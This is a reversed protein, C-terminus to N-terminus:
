KKYMKRIRLYKYYVIYEFNLIKYTELFTPLGVFPGLFNRPPRPGRPRGYFRLQADFALYLKISVAILKEKIGGVPLM